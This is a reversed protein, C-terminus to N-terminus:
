APSRPWAGTSIPWRPYDWGHEVNSIFGSIFVLDIPGIGIVQYAIHYGGSKAYRTEPVEHM